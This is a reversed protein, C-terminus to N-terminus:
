EDSQSSILSVNDIPYFKAMDEDTCTHFSVDKHNWDGNKSKYPYFAVM